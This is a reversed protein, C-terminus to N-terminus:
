EPMWHGFQKQDIALYLLKLHAARQTGRQSRCNSGFDKAYLGLSPEAIGELVDCYAQTDRKWALQSRELSELADSLGREELASLLKEYEVDVAADSKLALCEYVQAMSSAGEECSEQAVSQTALFCLAGSYFCASVIKISSCQFNM